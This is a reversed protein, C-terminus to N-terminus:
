VSLSRSILFSNFFICSIRVPRTLAEEYWERVEIGPMSITVAAFIIEDTELTELNEEAELSALNQPIAGESLLVPLFLLYSFDFYPFM